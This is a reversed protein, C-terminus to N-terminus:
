RAYNHLGNASVPNFPASFYYEISSHARIMELSATGELLDKLLKLYIKRLKEIAQRYNATLLRLRLRRLFGLLIRKMRWSRRKAGGGLRVVAMRIRRRPM